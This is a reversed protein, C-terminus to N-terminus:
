DEMRECKWAESTALLQYFEDKLISVINSGIYGGSKYYTHRLTGEVTFGLKNALNICATNTTFIEGWIRHLNLSDFGHAILTRLAANAIGAKRKNPDVYLSWEASRHVWSINTLGCVGYFNGSGDQIAYMLNKKDISISQIWNDQALPSIEDAERCWARVEPLNRYYRAREKDIDKTLFISKLDKTKFYYDIL